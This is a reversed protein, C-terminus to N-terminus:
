LFFPGLNRTEGEDLALGLDGLKQIERAYIGGRVQHFHFVSPLKYPGSHQTHKSSPFPFRQDSEQKGLSRIFARGPPPIGCTPHASLDPNFVFSRKSVRPIGNGAIRITELPKIIYATRLAIYLRPLVPVRFCSHLVGKLVGTSSSRRPAGRRQSAGERPRLISTPDPM